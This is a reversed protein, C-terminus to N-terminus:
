RISNRRFWAIFEEPVRVMADLLDGLFAPEGITVVEGPHQHLVPVDGWCREAAVTFM